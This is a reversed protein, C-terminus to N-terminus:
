VSVGFTSLFYNQDFSLELVLFALGIFLILLIHKNYPLSPLCTKSLLVYRKARQDAEIELLLSIMDKDNQITPIVKPDAGNQLLLKAIIRDPKPTKADYHINFVRIKHDGHSFAYQLPTWGITDQANPYAGKQILLEIILNNGDKAAIHLPTFGDKNRIKPSAGKTLLKEAIGKDRIQAAYHLPTWGESVIANPDADNELLLEALELNRSDFIEYLPMLPTFRNKDVLASAITIHLPTLNYQTAKANPDAGNNILLEATGKNGMHAAYHLPTFGVRAEAKCCDAGIKLLQEVYDNDGIDAAIHLPTLGDRIEAKLDSFHKLFLKVIEFNGNSHGYFIAYDLPMSGRESQAKQDAGNQLLVESIEINGNKAAYHLPTYGINDAAYLNAGKQLLFKVMEIHGGKVAEHLPILCSQNPKNPDVGNQLLLEVIEKNDNKIAYNLANNCARGDYGAVFGPELTSLLYRIKSTNNNQAEREIETIISNLETFNLVSENVEAAQILSAYLLITMTKNMCTSSLQISILLRVFARTAIIAYQDM